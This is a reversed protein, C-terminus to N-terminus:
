RGFELDELAVLLVVFLLEAQLASSNEFVTGDTQVLPERDHPLDHVALVTEDQSIWRAVPTVAHPVSVVHKM